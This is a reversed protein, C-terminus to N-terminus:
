IPRPWGKAIIKLEEMGVGLVTPEKDEAPPHSARSVPRREIAADGEEALAPMKERAVRQRHGKVDKLSDRITDCM